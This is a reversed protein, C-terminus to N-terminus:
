KGSGKKWQRKKQKQTRKNPKRRRQQQQEDEQAYRFYAFDAPRVGCAHLQWCCPDPDTRWLPEPPFDRYHHYPLYLVLFLACLRVLPFLLYKECAKLPVHASLAGWACLVVCSCFRNETTAKQTM